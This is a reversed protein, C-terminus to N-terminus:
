KLDPEFQSYPSAFVGVVAPNPLSIFILLPRLTRSTPHRDARKVSRHGADLIM